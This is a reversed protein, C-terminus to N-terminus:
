DPMIFTSRILKGLFYCVAVAGLSCLMPWLAAAFENAGFVMYSAAIPLLMGYRTKWYNDGPEYTGDYMEYAGLYYWTDDSGIPGTYHYLRVGLALLIILSLLIANQFRLLKQL